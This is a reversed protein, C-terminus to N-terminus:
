TGDRAARAGPLGGPPRRRGGRALEPLLIAIRLKAGGACSKRERCDSRTAAPSDRRWSRAPGRRQGCRSSASACSRRREDRNELLEAVRAAVDAPELSNLDVVRDEYGLQRMFERIKPGSVLALGPTGTAAGLINAHLRMGLMVDCRRFSALADEPRQYAAMEVPVPRTMAQVVLDAFLGDDDPKGFHMPIFQLRANTRDVIADLCAALKTVLERANLRLSPDHHMTRM